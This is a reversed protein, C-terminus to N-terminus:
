CRESVRCEDRTISSLSPPMYRHRETFDAWGREFRQPSFQWARAVCDEVKFQDEVREFYSIAQELRELEESWVSSQPYLIGTCGSRLKQSYNQITVGNVTERLGGGYPGIVPRGASMCEVPMMGFDEIAPFILARSRRYLEALEDNSVAGHFQINPKARTRLTREMPGRGAIWLPRGSRNFCEVILDVRKYPVLAGAYLFAEGSSGAAAPRIWSTDVGPYIVEARRGYFARIRAAVFNSIAVFDNVGKAGSVDWRRLGATLPALLPTLAGFYYRQQDWVYRMPTFCYCIHPVGEPVRVNKAAAHSLSIVLDYGQLELSSVAWPYLPLLGRYYRAVGPLRNLWSCQVVHADIEASTSGKVHVMTLVEAQPYMHLFAQLCKEGGRMGTLWDHVLAVRM